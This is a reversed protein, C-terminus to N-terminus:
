RRLFMLIWAKILVMCAVILKKMRDDPNIVEVTEVTKVADPEGNSACAVLLIFCSAALSRSLLKRIIM